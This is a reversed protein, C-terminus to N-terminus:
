ANRKKLQKNLEEKNMNIRDLNNENMYSIIDARKKKLVELEAETEFIELEYLDLLMSYKATKDTFYISALEVLDSKSIDLKDILIEVDEPIRCAFMRDKPRKKM